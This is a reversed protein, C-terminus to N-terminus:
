FDELVFKSPETTVHGNVRRTIFVQFRDRGWGERDATAVIGVWQDISRDKLLAAWGRLDGDSPASGDRHTHMDGIARENIQSEIIAAVHGPIVVSTPTREDPYDLRPASTTTIRTGDSTREGFLWLGIERGDDEQAADTLVRLRTRNLRVVYSSLRSSRQVALTSAPSTAPASSAIPHSTTRTRTKLRSLLLGLRSDPRYSRASALIVQDTLSGGSQAKNM